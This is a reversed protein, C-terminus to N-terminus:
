AHAGVAQRIASPLAAMDNLKSLYGAAGATMAPQRGEEGYGTLVLVKLGPQVKLLERVVCVGSLRPLNLDLLVVDAQADRVMRIASEGDSAEGVVQLDDEPELIERLVDRVTPHDEVLMVSILQGPHAQDAAPNTVRLTATESM